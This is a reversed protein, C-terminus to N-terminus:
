VLMPHNFGRLLVRNGPLLGCDNVLVNAIQNAREFLGQYTWKDEAHLYAIREGWGKDIAKDLLETACNMREVDCEPVASLDMVPRSRRNQRIYSQWPLKVLSAPPARTGRGPQAISWCRAPM